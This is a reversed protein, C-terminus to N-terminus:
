QFLNWGTKHQFQKGPFAKYVLAERSYRFDLARVWAVFSCPACPAPARLLWLQFFGSDAPLVFLLAFQLTRHSIM